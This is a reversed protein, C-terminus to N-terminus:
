FHIDKLFIQRHTLILEIIQVKHQMFLIQDITKLKINIVYKNRTIASKNWLTDSLYFYLTLLPKHSQM